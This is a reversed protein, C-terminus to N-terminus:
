QVSYNRAEMCATYARKFTNLKEQYQAKAQAEQQQQAQGTQEAAKKQVARNARRQRAAGAMSGVVAGTAAGQGADDNAVGGIAAGAAAGGAAGRVRGGRVKPANAAAAKQEAAKQEASKAAPPPAQPDVGTREQASGYCESEDKLQQDASQKDKPYAFLGIAKSPSFGAQQSQAFAETQTLCISCAVLSFVALGSSRAPNFNIRIM